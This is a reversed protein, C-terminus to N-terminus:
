KEYTTQASCNISLVFAETEMYSGLAKGYSLLEGSNSKLQGNESELVILVAM